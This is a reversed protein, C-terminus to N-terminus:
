RIFTSEQTNGPQLVVPLIVIFPGPGLVADHVKSVTDCPLHTSTNM